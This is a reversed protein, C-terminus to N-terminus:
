SAMSSEQFYFHCGPNYKFHHGILCKSGIRVKDTVGADVYGWLLRSYVCYSWAFRKNDYWVRVASRDLGARYKGVQELM